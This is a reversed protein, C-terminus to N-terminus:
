TQQDILAGMHIAQTHGCNELETRFIIAMSASVRFVRYLISLVTVKAIAGLAKVFRCTEFGEEKRKLTVRLLV